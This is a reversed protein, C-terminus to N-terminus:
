SYRRGRVSASSAAWTSTASSAVFAIPSKAQALAVTQARASATDALMAQLQDLETKLADAEATAAIQALQTRMQMALEPKGALAAQAASTGDPTTVDFGTVAQVAQAVAATTKEAKDGFLWKAIEPAISIALPILPLM